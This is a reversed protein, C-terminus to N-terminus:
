AACSAGHLHYVNYRGHQSQGRATWQVMCKGELAGRQCGNTCRSPNCLGVLSLEPPVTSYHQSADVGASQARQLLQAVRLRRLHVPDVGLHSDGSGEDGSQQASREQSVRAARPAAAPVVRVVVVRVPADKVLERGLGARHDDEGALGHGHCEAAVRNPNSNPNPNPDPDPDPDPNPNPNPNELQKPKGEGSSMVIDVAFVDNFEFTAEKVQQESTAKNIVVKNADIVHKKM